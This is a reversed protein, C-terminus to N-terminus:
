SGAAATSNRERRRELRDLLVMLGTAALALLGLFPWVLRVGYVSIYGGMLLPGFAYGTGTILPLVANFRGRHSMPTHDAIYVNSNTVLLIEGLTWIVASIWFLEYSHLYYIMGYGVGLLTGALAVNLVARNRATWGTVFTTLLVVTLGNVTMVTGFLQPGAAGFLENMQIPLSFHNQGLIFTYIMLLLSFVFLVPRRLLVQLFGGAEAKEDTQGHELSAELAARDPQTEPVYRGILAIMVFTTLADGLFLWKIYNNFLFGAILPGFAFGLNRGLYELSFASKRNAPVTLDTMMSALAPMAAAMFFTTGALLGVIVPSKGLFACAGLCAASGTLSALLTRKRGLADAIRGGLLAGPVYTVTSVLTMIVGAREASYGLTQTLLLTLFPGVLNGLSNVMEALTIIYVGRPLGRYQAFLKNM